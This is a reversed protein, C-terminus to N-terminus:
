LHKLSVTLMTLLPFVTRMSDPVISLDNGDPIIGKQEMDNCNLIMKDNMM